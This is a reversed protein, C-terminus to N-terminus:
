EEYFSQVAHNWVMVQGTLGVVGVTYTNEYSDALYVFTDSTTGDSQFSIINEEQTGFLTQKVIGAILIDTQYKRPYKVPLVVPEFIGPMNIPDTEIAVAIEGTDPNFEVQTAASREVALSRTYRLITSLSQAANKLTTSELFPKFNPTITGLAIAMITIVLIM